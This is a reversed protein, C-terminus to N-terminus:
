VSTKKDLISLIKNIANETGLAMRRATEYLEKMKEYYGTESDFERLDNDDFTEVESGDENFISILYDTVDSSSQSKSIHVSFNVFAAQYIGPKATEEWKVENQLTQRLLKDVLEALKRYAM